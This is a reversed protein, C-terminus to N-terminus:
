RLRDLRAQQELRERRGRAVEHQEHAVRGGTAAVTSPRRRTSRALRKLSIGVSRSTKAQTM